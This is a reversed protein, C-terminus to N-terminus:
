RKSRRRRKPAGDTTTDNEGKKRAKQARKEASRRALEDKAWQAEEPSVLPTVHPYHAPFARAVARAYLTEVRPRAMRDDWGFRDGLAAELAARMEENPRFVCARVRGEEHFVCASGIVDDARGGAIKRALRASLLSMRFAARMRGSPAADPDIVTVQRYSARLREGACVPRVAVISELPIEVLTTTSDGLRRELLLTKEKLTYCYGAVTDRMFRMLLWVAYPYFLANILGVGTLLILANCAIQALALRLVIGAVGLLFAKGTMGKAGDRQRALIEEM